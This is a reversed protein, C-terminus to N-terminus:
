PSLCNLENTYTFWSAVGDTKRMTVEKTIMWFKRYKSVNFVSGYLTTCTYHCSWEMSPPDRAKNSRKVLNGELNFSNYSGLLRIKDDGDFCGASSHVDM